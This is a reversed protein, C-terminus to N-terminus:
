YSCAAGGHKNSSANGLEGLFYRYQSLNTGKNHDAQFDYPHDVFLRLNLMKLEPYQVGDLKAQVFYGLFDGGQFFLHPFSWQWFFV